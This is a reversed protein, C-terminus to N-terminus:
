LIFDEESRQHLIVGFRQDYFGQALVYIKWDPFLETVQGLRQLQLFDRPQLNVMYRQLRRLDSRTFNDRGKKRIRDVLGVADSEHFQYPVIVPQTDDDIVKAERAVTRFNFSTRHDMIRKADTDAYQYLQTFYREFLQHETALEHEDIQQLLNRTLGTASQYIGQPLRNEEPMFLVVEGLVPQGSEDALRGERNCRGAAQVISDLPALARYVRPFDVDVGAEILQTSVVRCPAGRKLLARITNVDIASEDGLLDSRNQACMWSSLHFLLDKEDDPLLRHLENWLEFAHRRTNVVCLAQRSQAMREALEAWSLTQLPSSFLYRVRRLQQFTANTDKTIETIENEEFGEVVSNSRRFAPQTATSFVFTVGYSRQLERLVNLLPNLLHTPLTQVEDFIVVSRAINHLKRCQGPRSAFLSEVFQVSTTVIIPADWNEAAYELPSRRRAEGVDDPVNVSSHHEIVIGKDEPDFIRRYLAANQEIISLYPIVVIVRRLGHLQAHRLAFAMSSLTKGGGTPVTLSFFGPKNKAADLCQQFIRNRLSNLEGQNPKSNKEAFLNALMRDFDLELSKRSESQYHAETDLFDADVLASFIFRTFMEFRLKDLLSQPDVALECFQWDLKTVEAQFREKLGVLCTFDYRSDNVFERLREADHLGAHHAAIAFALATKRNDFALRAGYVAHHTEVSRQKEGKLLQQFEDRYKGLDHLMGAWRAVEVCHANMRAAFLAALEGVGRLHDALNHWQGYNNETHAFFDVISNENRGPRAQSSPRQRFVLRLEPTPGSLLPTQSSFVQIFQHFFNSTVKRRFRRAPLHLVAPATRLLQTNLIM